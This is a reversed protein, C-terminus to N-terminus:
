RKKTRFMKLFSSMINSDKESEKQVRESTYKMFERMEHTTFRDVESPQIGAYYSLYITSDTLDKVNSTM